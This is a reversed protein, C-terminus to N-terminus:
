KAGRGQFPVMKPNKAINRKGNQSAKASIVRSGRKFFDKKTLGQRTKHATGDFVQYRTGILRQVGMEKAKKSVRSGAGTMGRGRSQRIIAGGDQGSGTQARAARRAEGAQIKGEIFKTGASTVSEPVCLAKAASGLVGSAARQVASNNVVSKFAGKIAKGFNGGKRGRALNVVQMNPRPIPLQKVM